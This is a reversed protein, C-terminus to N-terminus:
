SKERDIRALESRLMVSIMHLAAENDLANPDIRRVDSLQQYAVAALGAVVHADTVLPNGGRSSDMAASVLELAIHLTRPDCAPPPEALGLLEAIGGDFRFAAALQAIKRLNPWHGAELDRIAKEPVDAAKLLATRSVGLRAVQANIREVLREPAWPEVADTTM